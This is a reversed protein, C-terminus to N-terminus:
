FDASAPQLVSGTGGPSNVKLSAQLDGNRNNPLSAKRRKYPFLHERFFFVDKQLMTGDIPSRWGGADEYYRFGLGKILACMEHFLMEQSAYGVLSLEILLADIQELLREAGK